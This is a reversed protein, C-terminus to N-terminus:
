PWVGLHFIFFAGSVLAPLTSSAALPFFHKKRDQEAVRGLDLQVISKCDGCVQKQKIM